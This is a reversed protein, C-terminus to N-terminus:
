KLIECYLRNYKSSMAESSLVDKQFSIIEGRNIEKSLLNILKKSFNSDNFTEGLYTRSDIEFLESHSPIDSLFCALGSSLAEIISISFGESSSNSIYFDAAEYFEIINKQFGAFIVRDNAIKKAEEILPGDGVILLVENTSHSLFLKILDLVRKRENIVGCYLFVKTDNPIYYRERIKDKSKQFDENHMVDVGNVISSLKRVRGKLVEYSTKSCTVVEDFRNLAFIHLFTFIKGIITGYTFKYDEDINNHITSIKKATLSKSMVVLATVIGHVHIIDPNVKNIVSKIRNFSRIFKFLSKDLDLQIVNVGYLELDEVVDKSNKFLTLVVIEYNYKKIGYITNQLVRTPGGNTLYNITYLIRM